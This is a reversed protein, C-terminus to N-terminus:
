LHKVRSLAGLVEGHKKNFLQIATIFSDVMGWISFVFWYLFEKRLAALKEEPVPMVANDFKRGLFIYDWCADNMDKARSTERHSLDCSSEMFNM